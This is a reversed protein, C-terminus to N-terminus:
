CEDVDDDHYMEWGAMCLLCQVVIYQVWEIRDLRSHEQEVAVTKCYNGISQHKHVCFSFYYWYFPHYM